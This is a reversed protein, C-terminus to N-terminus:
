VEHAPGGGKTNIDAKHDELSGGSHGTLSQNWGELAERAEM